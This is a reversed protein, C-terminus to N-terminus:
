VGITCNLLRQELLVNDEDFTILVSITQWSSAGGPCTYRAFWPHQPSGQLSGGTVTWLYNPAGRINTECHFLGGPCPECSLTGWAVGAVSALSLVLLASAVRNRM